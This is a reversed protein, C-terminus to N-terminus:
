PNLAYSGFDNLRIDKRLIGEPRIGNVRRHVVTRSQNLHQTTMLIQGVGKSDGHVSSFDVPGVPPCVRESFGVFPGSVIDSNDLAGVCLGEVELDIVWGSLRQTRKWM